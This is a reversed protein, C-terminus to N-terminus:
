FANTHSLLLAYPIKYLGSEIPPLLHHAFRILEYQVKQKVFFLSTIFINAPRDDVIVERVRTTIDKSPNPITTESRPPFTGNTLPIASLMTPSTWDSPSAPITPKTAAIIM